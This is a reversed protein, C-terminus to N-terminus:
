PTPGSRLAVAQDLVAHLLADRGVIDWMGSWVYIM